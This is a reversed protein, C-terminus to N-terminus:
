LFLARAFPMVYDSGALEVARTVMNAVRLGRGPLFGPPFLQLNTDGLPPDSPRSPPSSVQGELWVEVRCRRPRRIHAM